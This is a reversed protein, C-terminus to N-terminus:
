SSFIKCPLASRAGSVTKGDKGLQDDATTAITSSHCCCTPVRSTTSEGVAICTRRGITATKVVRQSEQRTSTFLLATLGAAFDLEKGSAGPDRAESASQLRLRNKFVSGRLSGCHIYAAALGSGILSLATHVGADADEGM